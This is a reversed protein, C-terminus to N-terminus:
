SKHDRMKLDQDPHKFEAAQRAREEAVAAFYDKVDRRLMFVIPAISFSFFLVYVATFVLPYQYIYNQKNSLEAALSSLTALGIISYLIFTWLRAFTEQAWIAWALGLFAAGWLEYILITVISKAAAPDATPWFGSVVSVFGAIANIVILINLVIPIM